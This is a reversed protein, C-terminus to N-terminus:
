RSWIRSFWWWGRAPKISRKTQTQLSDLKKVEASDAAAYRRKYETPTEGTSGNKWMGRRASKAEAEVKLFEDKGWKGYEAGSQEYTIAWGAKLMELALSRGSMWSVPLLRPPLVVNAVTRSYQDRRLPQCYLTKGLIKGKLWALSEESYPQSPRGFHAAEPADVGGIRIHLTQNSLDKAASPIRRFKIPWRWGFSPTHYLRFNDSDGVSTVVGKIWRRKAFYDPTLWDGNKLRRFFRAYVLTVTVTTMSGLAFGSLALVPPPLSEIRAKVKSVLEDPSKSDGWSAWSPWAM